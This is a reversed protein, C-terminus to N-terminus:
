VPGYKSTFVSSKIKKRYNSTNSTCKGPTERVTNLAVQVRNRQKRLPTVNKGGPDMGGRSQDLVAMLM